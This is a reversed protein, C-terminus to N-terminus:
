RWTTKQPHKKAKNALTEIGEKGEGRINVKVKTEVEGGREL